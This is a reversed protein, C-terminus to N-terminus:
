NAFRLTVQKAGKGHLDVYSVQGFHSLAEQLTRKSLSLADVSHNLKLLTGTSFGEFVDSGRPFM